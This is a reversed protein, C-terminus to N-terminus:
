KLAPCESELHFLYCNYDNIEWYDYLGFKLPLRFKAPHRKWTQCEGNVRWKTIKTSCGDTSHVITGHKLTLATAKNIM